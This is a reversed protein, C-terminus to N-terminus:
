INRGAGRPLAQASAALGPFVARLVGDATPAYGGLLDFAGAAVASVRRRVGPPLPPLRAYLWVPGAARPPAGGLPAIVALAPGPAARAVLLLATGVATLYVILVSLWARRPV